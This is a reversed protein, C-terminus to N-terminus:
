DNDGFKKGIEYVTYSYSEDFERGLEFLSKTQNVSVLKAVLIAAAQQCMNIVHYYNKWIEYKHMVKILSEDM